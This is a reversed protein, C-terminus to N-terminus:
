NREHEPIGLLTPDSTNPGRIEPIPRFDFWRDLLISNDDPILVRGNLNYISGMWIESMDSIRSEVLQINYKIGFHIRGKKGEPNVQNGHYLYILGEKTGDSWDQLSGLSIKAQWKEGAKMERLLIKRDAAPSSAKLPQPSAVHKLFTSDLIRSSFLSNTAGTAREISLTISLQQDTVEDNWQLRNGQEDTLWVEM